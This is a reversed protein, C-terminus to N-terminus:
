VTSQTCPVLGYAWGSQPTKLVYAGSEGLSGVARAVGVVRRGAAPEAGRPEAGGEGEEADEGRAQHQQESGGERGGAVGGRGAGEEAHGGGGEARAQRQQRRPEGDRGGGERGAREPCQVMRRLRRLQTGDRRTSIESVSGIDRRPLASIQGVIDRRSPSRRQSM